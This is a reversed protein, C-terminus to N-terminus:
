HEMGGQFDGEVGEKPNGLGNRRVRCKKGIRFCLLAM